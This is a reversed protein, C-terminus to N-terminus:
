LQPLQLKELIALLEGAARKRHNHFLMRVGESDGAAIHELIERHDRTSRVPLERMRLTFMRARHAQDYLVNVMDNMRDNGCLKMLGRHFRDDAAAWAELDKNELAAEMDETAEFLPALSEKDQKSEAIMAAAEPELATLIQYIQRMDEPSLPLIRVGRRPIMKVLGDGELRILAEHIPTRSMGLKLSLEPETILFGSPLRNRLIEQKIQLYAEDVRSNKMPEGM